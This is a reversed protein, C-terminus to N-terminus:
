SRRPTRRPSNAVTAEVPQRESSNRGRRLRRLRAFNRRPIRRPRPKTRRHPCYGGTEYCRRRRRRRRAVDRGPSGRRRRPTQGRASPSAVRIRTAFLWAIGGRWRRGRPTGRRPRANDSRTRSASRALLWAVHLVESAGATPPLPRRPRRRQHFPGADSPVSVLLPPSPVRDARSGSGPGSASAHRRTPRSLCRRTRTHPTTRITKPTPRTRPPSPTPPAAAVGGPKVGGPRVGGRQPAGRLTQAGAPSRPTARGHTPRRPGARAHLLRPRPVTALLPQPPARLRQARDQRPAPAMRPRRLSQRRRQGDRVRHVRAGVRGFRVHLTERACSPSMYLPTGVQTDALDDRETLAKAIGFDGIKVVKLSKTLFVNGPKIDRHLIAKSHVHALGLLLQVVWRMIADEPLPMSGVSKLLSALDGGECHSMVICLQAGPSRSTGERRFVGHFRVVNPHDSALKLVEAEAEM